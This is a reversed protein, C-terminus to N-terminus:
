LPAKRNAEILLPDPMSYINVPPFRYSAPILGETQAFSRLRRLADLLKERTTDGSLGAETLDDLENLLRYARNIQPLIDEQWTEEDIEGDVRAQNLLSIASIATDQLSAYQERPTGACGSASLLVAVLILISARITGM